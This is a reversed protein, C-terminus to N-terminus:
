KSIPGNAVLIRFISQYSEVHTNIKGVSRTTFRASAHSQSDIDDNTSKTYRNQMSTRPIEWMHMEKNFSTITQFKPYTVLGLFFIM